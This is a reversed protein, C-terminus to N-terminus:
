LVLSQDDPSLILEVSERPVRVGEVTVEVDDPTPPRLRAPIEDIIFIENLPVSGANKALLNATLDSRVHAKLMEVSFSKFGQLAAVPLPHSEVM